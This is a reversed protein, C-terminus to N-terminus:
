GSMLEEKQGESNFVDAYQLKGAPDVPHEM